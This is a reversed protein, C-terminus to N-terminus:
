DTLVSALNPHDALYPTLDVLAGQEAFNMVLNQAATNAMVYDYDEENGIIMGLKDLWNDAPLQDYAIKYGTKEEIVKASYMTNHDLPCNPLLANLTDEAFASGVCTLVLCLAMALTLLKKM